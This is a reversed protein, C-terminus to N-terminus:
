IPRFHSNLKVATDRDWAAQGVHSSNGSTVYQPGFKGGAGHWGKNEPHQRTTGLTKHRHTFVGTSLFFKNGQTKYLLPRSATDTQSTLEGSQPESLRGSMGLHFHQGQYINTVLEPPRAEEQLGAPILTTAYRTHSRSFFERFFRKCCVGFLQRIVVHDILGARAIASHVAPTHSRSQCTGHRRFATDRQTVGLSAATM